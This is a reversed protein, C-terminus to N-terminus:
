GEIETSAGQSHSVNQLIHDMYYRRDVHGDFKLSYFLCPEDLAGTFSSSPPPPPPPPPPISSTTVAEGPSPVTKDPSAELGVVAAVADAVIQQADDSATQQPLPSVTQVLPKASSKQSLGVLLLEKIPSTATDATTVASVDTQTFTSILYFPETQCYRSKPVLSEPIQSNSAALFSKLDCSPSLPSTDLDRKAKRTLEEIAALTQYKEVERQLRSVKKEYENM